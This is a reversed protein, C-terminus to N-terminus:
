NMTLATLESRTNVGCKRYINSSHTKVTPLSIFLEESIQKYTKGQILILAIEKERDTLMYNQLAQENPKIQPNFLSLRKIDDMMKNSALLIFIIPLTFGIKLNSGDFIFNLALSIPVLVMFAIAFKRDIHEKHKHKKLPKTFLLLTMSGVVSIGLFLIVPYQIIQLWQFFYGIISVITLLSAISVLSKTWIINIDTEREGFINLPTTLGVSVFSLLKLLEITELSNGTKAFPSVSLMVVLFLLSSTFFITELTELNRKYCILELFITVVLITYTVVLLIEELFELTNM